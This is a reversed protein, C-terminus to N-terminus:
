AFPDPYTGNASTSMNLRSGAFLILDQDVPSQSLLELVSKGELIPRSLADQSNPFGSNVWARAAILLGHIKDLAAKRPTVDGNIWNYITKRSQVNLTKALEEKTIGFASCIEEVAKSLGIQPIVYIKTSAGSLNVGTFSAVIGGSGQYLFARELLENETLARHIATPNTSQSFSGSYHFDLATNPGLDM